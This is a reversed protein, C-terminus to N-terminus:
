ASKRLGDGPSWGVQGGAPVPLPLYGGGAIFPGPTIDEWSSSFSGGIPLPGCGVGGSFYFHWSPPEGPGTTGWQFGVGVQIVGFNVSIAIDIYFRGSPDV